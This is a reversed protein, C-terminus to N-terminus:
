AGPVAGEVPVAGTRGSPARAAGPPRRAVLEDLRDLFARARAREFLARAEDALARADPDDPGLVAVADLLLQGLYHDARLERAAAIAARLGQLGDARRGELVQVAGGLGTREIDFTVGIEHQLVSSLVAERASPLDGVRLAAHAAIAYGWAAYNGSMRVAERAADALRGEALAVDAASRAWSWETQENSLGAALASAERLGRALADREGRYAAVEARVVLADALAVPPREDDAVTDLMALAEDYELVGVLMGAAFGVLGNLWDRRGTREAVEIGARVIEIADRPDDWWRRGALNYRARLEANSLRHEAALDVSARIMAFGEDFRDTEQLCVGRTDMAEAVVEILRAPGAAALAREAWAVGEVGRGAMMHVRAYEAAFRAFLGADAAPDLRALSQEFLAAAEANRSSKLHIRGLLATAQLARTEDGLAEYAARAADALEAAKESRADAEILEAQQVLLGARESAEDSLEFARELDHVAQAYNHLRASREAAARLAVRAQARVAHGQADDPAARYAELYHTAVVTAMSDDDLSDVYRAAALHRTRRDRRGLTGYAVEHVVAQVFGYQGREPSRPDAELSLFERRVLGRLRAELAGPDESSVAALAPITFTQGLVSADQLLSRDSPSLSDLRAAVLAQLSPPIALRGGKEPEAIAGEDRLMRVLEIAYLPIGEARVVVSGVLDSPLEPALGVLLRRMEDASLPDLHLAVANRSASGLAPRREVLEPRTLAIVLIPHSRSWEFISDIFDLIGEDAWQLDEFVLVATGRAAIAEFFRRWAGFQENRDGGTSQDIGLLVRLHPEIWHRDDPEPVYEAVAASLKGAAEIPPDSELIRARSRVMEALAWFAIGEGYAPSRGRHWYIPEVLGDLYKELEWALRSKGIGAQGIIAAYRPRLEAGTATLAEKLARLESSRGVFPAELRDTRGAGRRGGVVRMARWAAIPLSRGKVVHEGAPEFAIADRATRETAEGVLVTGAAAVAQLRAASNVLDGAVLAQDRAGVAVAAEGTLVAARAALDTVGTRERLSAVAEVLDLAARVAREADDERAVPTGWVAMVADGIFKEVSGGYREIVGRAAEFYTALLERVAEPDRAEALATSGVLDAFLVSVLRREAATAQLDASPAGGSPSTPGAGATGGPSATTGPTTELVAGCEGCFREGPLNAGGCSPCARALAAGCEACFKRDPRNETGCAVCRLVDEELDPSRLGDRTRPPLSRLPRITTADYVRATVLSSGPAM